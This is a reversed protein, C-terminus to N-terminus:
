KGIKTRYYGMLYFPSVFSSFVKKITRKKKIFAQVDLTEVFGYVPGGLGILDYEYLRRWPAEKIKFIDCHGAAQKVGAHIAKAIKETNGTQSSYIIICKM